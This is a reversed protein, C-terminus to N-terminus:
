PVGPSLRGGVPLRREIQGERLLGIVDARVREDDLGAGLEGPLDRPALHGSGVVVEGGVQVLLGVRREGCGPKSQYSTLM